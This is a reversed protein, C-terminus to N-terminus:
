DRRLNNLMPQGQVPGFHWNGRKEKEIKRSYLMSMDQMYDISLMHCFLIWLQCCVKYSM